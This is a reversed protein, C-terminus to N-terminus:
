RAAAIVRYETRRSAAAWTNKESNKLLAAGRASGRPARPM